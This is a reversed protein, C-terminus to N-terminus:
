KQKIINAIKIIIDSLEQPNASSLADAVLKYSDNKQSYIAQAEMQIKKLRFLECTAITQSGKKTLGEYLLNDHIKIHEFYNDYHAHVIIFFSSDKPYSKRNKFKNNLVNDFGKKTNCGPCSLSLNSPEFTFRDIISKAVIHEIDVEKIDLGLERKCYCCKNKQEIRLHKRIKNKLEIFCDKEWDTHNSFENKILEKDNASLTYATYIKDRKM